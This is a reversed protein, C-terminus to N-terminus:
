RKRLNSLKTQVASVAEIQLEINQNTTIQQQENTVINQEATKIKDKAVEIEKHYKDNDSKLKKLDSKLKKLTKEQAALEIKTQEVKVELAFREMMDQAQQYQTPHDTSNLFAGGMDVWMSVNVNGGNQGSKAYVDVTNAGGIGPITANDSFLEDTKKNPKTKVKYQGKLFDKWVKNVFKEEAEPIEVMIANKTGMSMPIAQETIQANAIFAVFFLFTSSILIAKKM